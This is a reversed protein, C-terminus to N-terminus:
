NFIECIWSNAEIKFAKNKCIVKRKLLVSLITLMIMISKKLQLKDEFLKLANESFQKLSKHSLKSVEILREALSGPNNIDFYFGARYSDLLARLDGNESSILPLGSSLYAFTKNPFSYKEYSPLVAVSSISNLASVGNNDVWGVFFVNDLGKAANQCKELYDGKGALVFAFRDALGKAKIINAAQILTLPHTLYTYSGIYNVVIRNHLKSQEIEPFIKFFCDPSVADFKDGGIFFVADRANAKRGAYKGLGWDLLNSMMSVVCSANRLAFKTM